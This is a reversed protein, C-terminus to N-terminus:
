HRGKPSPPRRGACLLDRGNDASGLTEVLGRCGGFCQEYDGCGACGAPLAAIKELVVFRAGQQWIEELPRELLSGLAYPWSSCPHVMGNAAIHALSNAAQCGGYESRGNEREGPFLIEWLFLDHVELTLGSRLAVPDIIVTRLAALQAPTPLSRAQRASFSADVPTNPLKIRTVGHRRGFDCLQPLLPLRERDPVMWLAPRTGYQRLSELAQHLSEWENATGCSLFANADLGIEPLSKLGAVGQWEEETGAFTAQVQIGGGRLITLIGAIAPHALPRAVLTVYFLGAYVLKEAVLEAQLSIEGASDHLEWTARLPTDLQAITM